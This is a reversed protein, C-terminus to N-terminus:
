QHTKRPGAQISSRRIRVGGILIGMGGKSEDGVPMVNAVDEEGLDLLCFGRGLGLGRREDADTMEFPALRRMEEPM